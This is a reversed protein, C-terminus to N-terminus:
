LSVGQLCLHKGGQPTIQEKELKGPTFLSTITASGKACLAEEKLFNKRYFKELFDCLLLLKLSM